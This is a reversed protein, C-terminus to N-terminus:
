WPGGTASKVLAETDSLVARAWERVDACYNEATDFRVDAITWTWAIEDVGALKKGKTMSWKREGSDWRTRYQRRAQEPTLGEHVFQRLLQRVALWGDRSYANHQLMYCPVSLHHVAYYSEPNEAEKLQTATFRDSCTEGPVFAAGCQPCRAATEM